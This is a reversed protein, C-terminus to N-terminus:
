NICTKPRRGALVEVISRAASMSIDLRVQEVASGLHPLLLTNPSSRLANPISRPRDPLSLDEFEFVDAAYGALHGRKLAQAVAAEDVVSGRGINIIYAGRKMRRIAKADILHRTGTKLPLGVAVYTSRALISDLSTFTVGLKKARSALMRNADYALVRIEFGRLRQAIAQGIVGMGLIGVTEGALGTGYLIPRWGEFRGSAVRAHGALMNRGLAIMMGVTLEAAPKTLLDPVFTVRVNRRSCAEVDINDFGKLAAGVVKLKACANLLKADVRDPMFVMLADANRANKLLMAPTWSERTSNAMVRSHKRLYRLVDPHVWHTLTITPKMSNVAQRLKAGLFDVLTVLGLVLILLALMEHYALITFASYLTFGIGGAGVLGMMFSNRFNCEWRYVSADTLQPFALVLYGHYLVQLPGAGTARVAEVASADTHEIIEAFFKGLVGTSHFALALTGALPGAGFAAVFMIAAILDPVGRMINLLVRTGHYIVPHPTANKAALLSLPISAFVALATGATCMALTQYLPKLWLRRDDFDPPYMRLAVDTLAADGKGAPHIWYDPM